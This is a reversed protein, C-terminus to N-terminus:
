NAQRRIFAPVKVKEVARARRGLFNFKFNNGKESQPLDSMQEQHDVSGGNENQMSRIMEKFGINVEDQNKDFEQHYNEDLEQDTMRKPATFSRIQREPITETEASNGMAGNEAAEDDMNPESSDFSEQQHNEDGVVQPEPIQESEEDMWIGASGEEDTEHMTPEFVWAEDSVIEERQYTTSVSDESSTLGTAVLSVCIKGTYEPDHTTGVIVHVDDKVHKRIEESAASLDFLTQDEGGVINILVAKANNLNTEELLQNNMANLAALKGRSEDEKSPDSTGVGMMARGPFKLVSDVDAFDLNILGPRVMLDTISKVGHYLVDDALEFAKLTTTTDNSISFLNQNPIVLLTNVIEELERIGKEAIEMRRSGEFFFPKTVVGVTLVGLDRAIKAIVPSAGTGTGGGMGATIFCLHAGTLLEKIEEKNEEAATKGIDPNAGAGLGQTTVEGLQINEIEGSTDMLAQADTNAIAFEVGQLEKRSMNKVANGGGGGVGFVIIKPSRNDKVQVRVSNLTM